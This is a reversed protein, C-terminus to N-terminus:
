NPQNNFSYQTISTEFVNNKQIVQPQIYPTVAFLSNAVVVSLFFTKKM